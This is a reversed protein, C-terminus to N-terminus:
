AEGGDADGVAVTKGAHHAGIPLPFFACGDFEDDAGPEHGDVTELHQSIRFITLRISPKTLKQSYAIAFGLFSFTVQGELLNEIGAFILNEDDNRRQCQEVATM